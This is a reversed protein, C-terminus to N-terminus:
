LQVVNARARASKQQINHRSNNLVFRRYNPMRLVTIQLHTVDEQQM